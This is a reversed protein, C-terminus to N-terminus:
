LFQFITLPMSYTNNNNHVTFGWSGNASISAMSSNIITAIQPANGNQPNVFYVGKYNWTGFVVLYLRGASSSFSYTSSPSISQNYVMTWKLDDQKNSLSSNISSIDSTINSLFNAKTEKYDTGGSNVHILDTDATTSRETLDTLSQNPM